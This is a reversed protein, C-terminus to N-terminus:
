FSFILNFMGGFPVKDNVQYTATYAGIEARMQVSSTRNFLYGGKVHATLGSNNYKRILGNSETVTINHGAYGLGGGLFPSSARQSFPRLFSLNFDAIDIDSFYLEGNIELIYDRIDASYKVGFGSSFNSKVGDYVTYVGGIYAGFNSTAEKKKLEMADYQAVSYIDDYGAKTDESGISRSFIQLIPDLDDPTYAKKLDSWVKEGTATKHLSLSIIMVDQLANMEGILYYTANLAQAKQKIQEKTQPPQNSDAKPALILEYKNKQNVYTKLLKSASYQYEYHVNLVEFLPFYVKEQAFTTLAIFISFSLLVLKKKM